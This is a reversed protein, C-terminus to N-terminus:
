EKWIKGGITAVRALLPYLLPMVAVSLGGSVAFVRIRGVYTLGFFVGVAWVSIEYLMMAGAACLWDSSFGRRLYSERFLAALIGWVTLMGICLTDPASGSFVYVMSAALAFMGGSEPGHMVCILLIACPTLDVFGGWMRASGLFSDQFILAAVCVLAYLAWKLAAARQAPTVYLKNLIGSGTPDPRFEYKKRAM